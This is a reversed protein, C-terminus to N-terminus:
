TRLVVTRTLMLVAPPGRLLGSGPWKVIPRRDTRADFIRTLHLLPVAFLVLAALIALCIAASGLNESPVGGHDPVPAASHASGGPIMAVPAPSPVDHGGVHGLTHMAALGLALLTALLLAPLLGARRGSQRLRM